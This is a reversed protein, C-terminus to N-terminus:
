NGGFLREALAPAMGSKLIKESAKKVDYEARIQRYVFTESDFLGFALRPDGDRPQGVSGVNILYREGKKLVGENVIEASGDLEHYIVPRHSHGIFCVSETFSSFNEYAEDTDLVYRYRPLYKPSAHVFLLNNESHSRPLTKLYELNEKSLIARTHISSSKAYERFGEPISFDFQAEDHNGLIVIDCRSRIIEIVENPEACYDVLDGLFIIRDPKIKDIEGFCATVAELNAHVDSIVAYKL